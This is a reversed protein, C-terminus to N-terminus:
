RGRFVANAPGPRDANHALAMMGGILGFLVAACIARLRKDGRMRAQIVSMAASAMLMVIIGGVIVVSRDM